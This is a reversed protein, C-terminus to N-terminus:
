WNTTLHGSKSLHTCLETLLKMCKGILTIHQRVNPFIEYLSGILEETLDLFVGNQRKSPVNDRQKANPFVKDLFSLIRDETLKWM